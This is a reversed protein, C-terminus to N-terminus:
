EWFKIPFSACDNQKTDSVLLNKWTEEPLDDQMHEFVVREEFRIHQELTEAFLELNRYSIQGNSNREYIHQILEHENHLIAAYSRFDSYSMLFPILKREELAVHESLDAKWFQRIFDQMIGLDAKKKIGKRLLLCAMLENHHQRSLPQLNDHRKM